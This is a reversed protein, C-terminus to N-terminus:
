INPLAASRSDYDIKGVQEILWQSSAQAILAAGKENPHGDAPIYLAPGKSELTDGVASELDLFAVNRERFFAQAKHLFHTSPNNPTERFGWGTAIVWLPINRSACWHTMERFLAEALLTNPTGSTKTQPLVNGKSSKTHATSHHRFVYARRILQFLHSHELLFSYFPIQQIYHKLGKGKSPAARELAGQESLSYLKSSYSRAIDDVNFFVLVGKPSIEDGFEELYALQQATGWGGTAANLLQYRLPIEKNLAEELLAVYSDQRRLLWGFTFSDGLVLIQRAEPQPEPSRQHLSNLSYSVTREGLQHRAEWNARNLSYGRKSTTLWTGSLNQPSVISVIFEALLLSLALSCTILILRINM